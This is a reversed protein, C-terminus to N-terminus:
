KGSGPGTGTTHRVTRMVSRLISSDQGSFDGSRQDDLKKQIEEESLGQSEWFSVLEDRQAQFAERRLQDAKNQQYLFGALVLIIILISLGIAKWNIKKSLNKSM